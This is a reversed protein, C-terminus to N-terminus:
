AEERRRQRELMHRRKDLENDSQTGWRLNPVSNDAPGNIGHLVFPHGDPNPIHHEAVLRHVWRKHRQGNEDYLTVCLHGQDNGVRLAMLGAAQLYPATHIRVVWREYRWVRGRNSVAYFEEFGTVTVWHERHNCDPCCKRGKGYNVCRLADANCWLCDTPRM